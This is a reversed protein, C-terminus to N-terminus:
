TANANGAFYGVAPILACSLGAIYHWSLGAAFIMRM